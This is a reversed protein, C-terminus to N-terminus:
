NVRFYYNFSFLEAVGSAAENYKWAENLMQVEHLSASADKYLIVM